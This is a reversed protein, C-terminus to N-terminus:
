QVNVSILDCVTVLSAEKDNVFLLTDNTLSINKGSEINNSAGDFIFLSAVTGDLLFGMDLETWLAINANESILVFYDSTPTLVAHTECCGLKLSTLKASLKSVSQQCKVQCKASM